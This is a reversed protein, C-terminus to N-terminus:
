AHVPSRRDPHPLDTEPVAGNQTATPTGAGPLAFLSLPLGRWRLIPELNPRTCISRAALNLSAREESSFVQAMEEASRNVLLGSATRIGVRRLKDILSDSAQRSDALQSYLMAQDVWQVIRDPPLRTQIMLELVDATAM